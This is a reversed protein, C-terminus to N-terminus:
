PRQVVFNDFHVETPNGDLSDAMLGVDGSALTSATQESLLTDNVWLRLEQGNCEVQVHNVAAGTRILESTTPGDLATAVGDLYLGVLYFGDASILFIYGDENETMRCLVGMWNDMTGDVWEVDVEIIADELLFGPTTLLASGRGESRITMKGDQYAIRGNDDEMTLWGSSPDRFDDAFFPPAPTPSPPPPTATVPQCAVLIVLLWPALFRATRVNM